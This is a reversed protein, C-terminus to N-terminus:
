ALGKEKIYECKAAVSEPDDYSIFTSGDFIYPAKASEDFQLSGVTRPNSAYRYDDMFVAYYYEELKDKRTVVKMGKEAFYQTLIESKGIGHNGVLMLNHEAPTNELVQLLETINVRINSM